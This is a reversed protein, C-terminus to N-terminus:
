PVELVNIGEAEAFARADPTMADTVLILTVPNADPPDNNWLFGYGKLTGIAAQDANRRVEIIHWRLPLIGVVDIRKALLFEWAINAQPSVQPDAEPATGLAVDFYFGQYAFPLLLRWKSWIGLDRGVMHPPKGAFDAPYLSGLRPPM